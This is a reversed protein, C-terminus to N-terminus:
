SPPCRPPPQQRAVGRHPSSALSDPFPLLPIARTQRARLPPPLPVSEFPSATPSPFFRRPPLLPFRHPPARPAAPTSLAPPLAPPPLRPIAASWAASRALAPPAPPCSPLSSPLPASNFDALRWYAFASASMASSCPSASGAALCSSLKPAAYACDTSNRVNRALGATLRSAFCETISFIAARSPALLIM